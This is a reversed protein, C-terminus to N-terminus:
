SIRRTIRGREDASFIQGGKFYVNWQRTGAFDSLVLYNVRSAPVGLRGAASRTLRSPASAVIDHMTMTKAGAFGAGTTGIVRVAGAPVIQVQRLRGDKTVLTADIREPAVRLNGLRGYGGTRLRTIARGFAAPRLLSGTSLGRPPREPQARETPDGEDGDGGPVSPARADPPSLEDVFRDAREVGEDVVAGLAGGLVAILAGLVIAAKVLRAVPVPRRQARPASRAHDHGRPSGRHAEHDDPEALSPPTRAADATPQEATGFMTVPEPEHEGAPEATGARDGDQWGLSALPNEGKKRGFPDLDDGM